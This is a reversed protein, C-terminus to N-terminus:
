SADGKQQDPTPGPTPGSTPGPTSEEQPVVKRIADLIEAQKKLSPDAVFRLHPVSRTRLKKGVQARLHGAAAALGQVALPEATAPLVSVRVQAERNDPSLEVGTVSILGRVRPDHLGHTILEGITRQLASALQERRHSMDTEPKLTEPKLNRLKFGSVRFGSVM